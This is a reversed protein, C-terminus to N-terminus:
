FLAFHGLISKKLLKDFDLCNKQNKKYGDEKMQDPESVLKEKIIKSLYLQFLLRPDMPENYRTLKM